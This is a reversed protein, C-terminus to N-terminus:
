LIGKKIQQKPNASHFGMETPDFHSRTGRCSPLGLLCWSGFVKQAEAPAQRQAPDRGSPGLGSASLPSKNQAAQSVEALSMEM